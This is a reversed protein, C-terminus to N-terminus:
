VSLANPINKLQEQLDKEEIRVYAKMLACNIRANQIKRRLDEGIAQLTDLSEKTPSVNENLFDLIEIKEANSISDLIEGIWKDVTLIANNIYQVLRGTDKEFHDLRELFEERRAKDEIGEDILRYILLEDNILKNFITQVRENNELIEKSYDTM